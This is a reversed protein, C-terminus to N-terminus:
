NAKDLWPAWTVLMYGIMSLLLAVVSWFITDLRGHVRGFSDKIDGYREACIKEHGDIRSELVATRTTADDAM